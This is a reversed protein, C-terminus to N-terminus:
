RESEGGSNKKLALYVGNTSGFADYGKDKKLGETNINEVDYWELIKGTRQYVKENTRLWRERIDKAMASQGNRELGVVSLWLLPAWGGLNNSTKVNMKDEAILGGPKLLKDKLVLSATKAKMQRDKVNGIEFCFPFMGALSILSRKKYKKMQFDTYFGIKENWFFVNFDARTAIGNTTQKDGRIKRAKLIVTELNLLM